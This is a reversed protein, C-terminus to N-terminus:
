AFKAWSGQAITFVALSDPEMGGHSIPAFSYSGAIGEAVQTELYVRIRGRDASRGMRAANAILKVADSAYPAFGSFRGYRQVYRNVFERRLLDTRTTDTLSSGALSEPHVVYADEVAELNKASVTDDAVAGPSFFKLGRFGAAHVATAAAGADPAQAWIILADPASTAVSRAAAAFSSGSAPLRVAKVLTLDNTELASTVARLGSDGYLGDQALLAVTRKQLGAVIPAMIRAVDFADPTLKYIFTRKTLPVTIDDASALSIYPVQESQAIDVIAMSVEARTGGLIAHVQDRQIMETVQQAATKPNSGNDRVVLRIQRRFNGVPVGADNLEDVTIRLAREQLSGFAAAAGTLELSAGIILEESGRRIPGPNARDDGSGCATTFLTGAAVAFLGRRSLASAGIAPTAM